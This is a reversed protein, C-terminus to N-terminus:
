YVVGVVGSKVEDDEDLDLEVRYLYLGPPVLNGAGNKGDWTGPSAAGSRLYTGAVLAAPNLDAVLRGNLDFIQIKVGRPIDVKALIFEIVTQDNRGDGNPSFVPPNAQVESLAKARSTTAIVSWSYPEATLPDEDLNQAANLPDDSGPGFLFARFNHANAYSRAQFPIQLESVNNAPSLPEAFVIELIRQSSQWSAVEVGNLGTIGGVDLLAESPVEIHLKEVGADGAAFDLNLTYVFSTDLGMPARNPAVRGRSASAPIDSTSFDLEIGHFEPTRAADRSEMNVRYQFFRRPEAAPFAVTARGNKGVERAPSWEDWAEFSDAADGSRFQVSLDTRVPVTAEWSVQGFNKISEAEDPPLVDSVFAGEIAFGQGYVEVEAVRPSSVGNIQTIVLRLFRTKSSRFSAETKDFQTIDVLSAVESWRIQDDSIQIAYGKLSNNEFNSGRTMVRVLDINHRIHLDLSVVGSLANVGPEWDTNLDGDVTEFRNNTVSNLALNQGRIQKLVVSGAVGGIDVDGPFGAVMELSPDVLEEIQTKEVSGTQVFRWTEDDGLGTATTWATGQLDQDNWHWTLWSRDTTSAAFTSDRQVNLSDTVPGVVAAILGNGAGRGRNVVKVGIHNDGRGITIPYSNM